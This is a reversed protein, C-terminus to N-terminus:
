FDRYDQALGRAPQRQDRGSVSRLTAGGARQSSAPKGGPQLLPARQREEKADHLAPVYRSGIICMAARKPVPYTKVVALKSWKPPGEGRCILPKRGLFLQVSPRVRWTPNARNGVRRFRAHSVRSTTTGSPSTTTARTAPRM